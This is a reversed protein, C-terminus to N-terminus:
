NVLCKACCKGWQVDFYTRLVRRTWYVDNTGTFEPLRAGDEDYLLDAARPRPNPGQSAILCGGSVTHACHKGIFQNVWRMWREDEEPSNGGEYHAFPIFSETEQTEALSLDEFILQGDAARYALRLSFAAKGIQTPSTGILGTLLGALLPSIGLQNHFCQQEDSVSVETVRETWDAREQATLEHQWIWAACSSWGGIQSKNSKQIMKQVRDNHASGWLRMPSPKRTRLAKALPNDEAKGLVTKSTAAVAKKKTTPADPSRQDRDEVPNEEAEGQGFTRNNNFWSRCSKRLADAGFRDVWEQPCAEVVEGEIEELWKRKKATDKERLYVQYQPIKSTLLSMLTPNSKWPVSARQALPKPKHGSKGPRKPQGLAKSM